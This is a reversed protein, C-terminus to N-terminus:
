SRKSISFTINLDMKVMSCSSQGEFELMTDNYGNIWSCRSSRVNTLQNEVLQLSERSHTDHGTM